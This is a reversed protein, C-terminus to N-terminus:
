AKEAASQLSLHKTFLRCIKQRQNSVRQSRNSYDFATKEAYCDRQLSGAAPNEAESDAVGVIGTNM